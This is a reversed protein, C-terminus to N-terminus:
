SRSGLDAIRIRALGVCVLSCERLCAPLCARVCAESARGAALNNNLVNGKITDVIHETACPRFSRLAEEEEKVKKTCTALYAKQLEKARNRQVRVNEDETPQNATSISRTM